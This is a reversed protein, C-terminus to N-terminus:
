EQRASQLESQRRRKRQEHRVLIQQYLFDSARFNTAKLQTLAARLDVLDHEAANGLIRLTGMVTLRRREAEVRGDREDLLLADSQIEECLAIAEREGPGLAIPFDSPIREPAQVQLWEAGRAFWQRVSDPTKRDSLEAAVAPPILVHGYLIPLLDVKGILILYNLPTTDAVVIM